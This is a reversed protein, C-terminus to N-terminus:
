FQNSDESSLRKARLNFIKQATGNFPCHWIKSGRNKEVFL